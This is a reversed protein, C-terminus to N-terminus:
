ARGDPTRSMELRCTQRQTATAEARESILDKKSLHRLMDLFKEAVEAEDGGFKEVYDKAMTDLSAGSANELANQRRELYKRYTADSENKGQKRKISYAVFEPSIFSGSFDEGIHASGPNLIGNDSYEMFFDFLPDISRRYDVPDLSTDGFDGPMSFRIDPNTGDFTGINETASKIQTSEFAVYITGIDSDWHNYIIGDYGNKQLIEAVNFSDADQYIKKVESLFSNPDNSQAIYPNRINLYAQIVRKGNLKAYSKNNSFYIGKGLWGNKTGHDFVTFDADTGHYVVLPKGEDDVVKSATEPHRQWDGFYKKFQLTETQSKVNIGAEAINHVFGTPINGIEKSYATYRNAKAKDFYFIGIGTKEAKIAPVLFQEMWDKSDYVTLVLHSDIDNNNVTKVSEILVPVVIKKGNVNMDTIAVVSGPAANPAKNVVIALPHKLAQPLSELKDRLNHTHEGQRMTGFMKEFDSKDYYNLRLHRVNMLMPIATFGINKFVDPTESVFVLERVSKDTVARHLGDKWPIQYYKKHEQASVRDGPASLKLDSDTDEDEILFDESSLGLMAAAQPLTLHKKDKGKEAAENALTNKLEDREKIVEDLEDAFEFKSNKIKKQQEILGEFSKAKEKFMDLESSKKKLMAGLSQMLGQATNANGSVAVGSVSSVELGTLTYTIKTEAPKFVQYEIEAKIRIGLNGISIEASGFGSSLRDFVQKDLQSLIEGREGTLTRGNM